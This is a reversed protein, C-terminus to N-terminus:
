EGIDGSSGFDEEEFIAEFDDAMPRGGWAFFGSRFGDGAAEGCDGSGRQGAGIRMVQQIGGAAEEVADKGKLLARAIAHRTGV